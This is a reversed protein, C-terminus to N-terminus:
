NTIFRNVILTQYLKKLQKRTKLTPYYNKLVKDVVSDPCSAGSTLYNKGKRKPLFDHTELINKNIYNFHRIKKDSIIEEESKIYYTPLKKM